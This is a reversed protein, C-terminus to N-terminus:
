TPWSVLIKFEHYDQPLRPLACLKWLRSSVVGMIAAFILHSALTLPCFVQYAMTGVLALLSVAPAFRAWEIM